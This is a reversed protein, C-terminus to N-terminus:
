IWVVLVFLKQYEFMWKTFELDIFIRRNIKRRKSRWDFNMFFRYFTQKTHNNKKIFHPFKKGQHLDRDFRNQNAVLKADLNPFLEAKYYSDIPALPVDTLVTCGSRTEWFIFARSSDITVSWVYYLCCSVVFLNLLIFIWFQFFDFVIEFRVLLYYQFFQM